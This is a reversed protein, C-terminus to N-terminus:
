HVQMLLDMAQQRIRMYVRSLNDQFLYITIPHDSIMNDPLLEKSSITMTALSNESRGKFGEILSELQTISQSLLVKVEKFSENKRFADKLQSSSYSGPNIQVGAYTIFVKETRYDLSDDEINRKSSSLGQLECSCFENLLLNNYRRSFTYMVAITQSLPIQLNAVQVIL